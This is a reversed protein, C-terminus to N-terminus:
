ADPGGLFLRDLEDMARPAPTLAARSLAEIDDVVGAEVGEPARLLAGGAAAPRLPEGFRAADVLTAAGTGLLGGLADLLRRSVRAADLEGQELQTLYAVARPEDDSALGLRAVLAAALERVSLGARERLRPVVSPWVGADGGVGALVARVVPEDRIAARAADDYRPAPAVELWTTVQEALADREAGEPVRQLYARVRPRRGANWADIFESLIRDTGSM